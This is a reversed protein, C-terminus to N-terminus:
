LKSTPLECQTDYWSPSSVANTEGIVCGPNSSKFWVEQTQSIAANGSTFQTYINPTAIYNSTGNFSFAKNVSSWTAGSITMNNNNGSLDNWTSGAGNYSSPNYGAVYVLSGSVISPLQSSSRSSLYGSDRTICWSISMNIITCCM